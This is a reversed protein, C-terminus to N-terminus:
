VVKLHGQHQDFKEEIFSKMKQQFVATDFQEAHHRIVANNVRAADFSEVADIIADVTQETFLVGTGPIVTELAGGGAYAIVPRGAAMAQIPAIGFDEEGPFMFARCRAIMDPLDEDPVYGLFEVTPGALAQLREKDRGSGAIRLPRKMKNFAEILLDLRRYPVLRGVFLYYDEVRNSPEFRTTEVPPYIITSERRYVKAIRRRIEESIAIFHDVRDAALRDWQRLLTLFPPLIRRTMRGLQEQEAYQFYRWVYRTPTLCYCVHMTEPGSIVGHCFGSKNSLIVDYKSFDFQEFAFPYLPFYLQQKKHALPMRDIFSTRIDWNQWHDPMRDQWYLSTFIPSNPYLSVFNELVDEAGGLQNLWDHVLAINM